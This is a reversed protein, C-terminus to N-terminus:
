LEWESLRSNNEGNEEVEGGLDGGNRFRNQKTCAVIPITNCQDHSQVSQDHLQKIYSISDLDETLGELDLVAAQM